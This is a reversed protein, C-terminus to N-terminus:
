RVRVPSDPAAAALNRLLLAEALCGTALEQLHLSENAGHARTDPDAVGTILIAARPYADAFAAVFPISGGIGIDTAEVGWAERLAARAADYAPGQSDIRYPEGATGQSVTVEAGWPAHSQLHRTLTDLARQANDGPAVRMSVKARAVPTLVNAVGDVAPADIALVAISPRTWQRSTLTGTGTLRVGPLLGSEQRLRAEDLDLPDADESVLGEVAVNGDDDHLTALLRVLATVADPVPGSGGSHIAHDLTAVRVICDALGRLTTSMGPRGVAWNGTDALVIVDCGLLDHYSDLFAPLTPSGIEEEGEIFVTVGVPPAGDFARLAALHLAVGAKDDATGRGFLRGDRETPEFPPSVWAEVPGTPQVDHHAYLLVTPAGDPAPYRGIVAPKGGAVTKISVDPLGAGRLLDAVLEASRDVDAARAPDASVSPIRVLTELDRRVGPLVRDVAAHLDSDIM